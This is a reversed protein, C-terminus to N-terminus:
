ILKSVPSLTCYLEKNIIFGELVHLEESIGTSTDYFFDSHNKIVEPETWLIPFLKLNCELGKNINGKSKYEYKDLYRKKFFDILGERSEIKNKRPHINVVEILYYEGSENDKFLFDVPKLNPIIVEISGLSCNKRLYYDIVFIEGISDYTRYGVKNDFNGLIQSVINKFKGHLKNPIQSVINQVTYDIYKLFNKSEENGLRYLFWNDLLSKEFTVIKKADVENKIFLLRKQYKFSVETWFKKDSNVFESIFPCLKKFEIQLSGM